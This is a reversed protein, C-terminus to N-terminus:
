VRWVEIGWGCVRGLAPQQCELRRRKVSAFCILSMDCATMDNGESCVIPLAMRRM